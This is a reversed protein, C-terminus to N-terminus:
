CGARASQARFHKAGIASCSGPSALLEPLTPRAQSRGHPTGPVRDQPHPPMLRSEDPLDFSWQDAYLAGTAKAAQVGTVYGEQDSGGMAPNARLYYHLEPPDALEVGCGIPRVQVTIGDAPTNTM